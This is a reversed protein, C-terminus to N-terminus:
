AALLGAARLVPALAALSKPAATGDPRCRALTRGAVAAADPYAAAATGIVEAGAVWREPTADGAVAAAVAVLVAFARDPRDPLVFGVPDALVSEPDPLDLAASWSLLEAAAGEGVAGATLAARVEA